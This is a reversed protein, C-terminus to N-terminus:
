HDKEIDYERLLGPLTSLFLDEIEDTTMLGSTELITILDDQREIFGAMQFDEALGEDADIINKYDRWLNRERLYRAFFLKEIRTTPAVRFRDFRAGGLWRQGHFPMVFDPPLRGPKWLLMKGGVYPCCRIMNTDTEEENKYLEIARHIVLDNEDLQILVSGEQFEEGRSLDYWDIGTNKDRHYIFKPHDKVEPTYEEFELVMDPELNDLHM